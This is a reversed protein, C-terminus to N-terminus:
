LTFAYVDHLFHLTDSNEDDIKIIHYLRYRYFLLYTSYRHYITLFILFFQSPLSQLNVIANIGDIDASYAPEYLM